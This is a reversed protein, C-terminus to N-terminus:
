TAYLAKLQRLQIIKYIGCQQLSLGQEAKSADNLGYGKHLKLVFESVGNFM